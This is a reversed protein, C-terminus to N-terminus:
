LDSVSITSEMAAAAALPQSSLSNMSSARAYWCCSLFFGSVSLYSSSHLIGQGELQLPLVAELLHGICTVLLPHDWLLCAQTNTQRPWTERFSGGEWSDLNGCCRSPKPQKTSPSTVTMPSLVLSQLTCVLAPGM